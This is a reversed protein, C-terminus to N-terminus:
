QSTTLMKNARHGREARNGYPSALGGGSGTRKASDSAANLAAATDRNPCAVTGSLERRSSSQTDIRARRLTLPPWPRLKSMPMNLVSLMRKLKTLVIRCCCVVAHVILRHLSQDTGQLTNLNLCLLM